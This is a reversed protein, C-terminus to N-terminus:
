LHGLNANFLQRSKVNGIGYCLSSVLAFVIKGKDSCCISCTAAVAVSRLSYGGKFLETGEGENEPTRMRCM